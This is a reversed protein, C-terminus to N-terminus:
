FEQVYNFFSNTVDSYLFIEYSNIDSLSHNKLKISLNHVVIFTKVTYFKSVAPM